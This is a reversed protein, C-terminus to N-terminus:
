ARRLAVIVRRSAGPVETVGEMGFAPALANAVSRPETTWALLLGSPRLFPGGGIRRGLDGVGKTTAVDWRPEEFREVPAELVEAGALGLLRSVHRLFAARKGRPELMTVQIDPRAAAIPIAPFGGGSGIDIVRAGHPILPLALLSEVAHDALEDATLRGTLNIRRRWLDLEALYTALSSVVAPSLPLSSRAAAEEVLPIYEKPPLPEGASSM